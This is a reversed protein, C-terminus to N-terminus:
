WRFLNDTPDPPDRAAGQELGLGQSCKIKEHARKTTTLNQTFHVSHAYAHLKLTTKLIRQSDLGLEKFYQLTNSNHISGGVGLPITHLTVKKAKL